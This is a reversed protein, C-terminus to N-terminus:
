SLLHVLLNIYIANFLAYQSHTLMAIVSMVHGSRTYWFPLDCGKFIPISGQAFLAVKASLPDKYPLLTIELIKACQNYQSANLRKLKM